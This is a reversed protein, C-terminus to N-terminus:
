KKKKKSAFRCVNQWEQEVMPIQELCALRRAEADEILLPCTEPQEVWGSLLVGEM